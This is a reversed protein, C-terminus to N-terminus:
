IQEGATIDLFVTRVQAGRDHIQVKYTFNALYTHHQGGISAWIVVTTGMADCPAEPLFALPYKPHKPGRPYPALSCWPLYQYAPPNVGITGMRAWSLGPISESALATRPFASEVCPGGILARPARHTKVKRGMVLMEGQAQGPNEHVPLYVDHDSITRMSVVLRACEREREWRAMLEILKRISGASPM